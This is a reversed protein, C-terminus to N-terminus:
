AQMKDIISDMVAEVDVSEFFRKANCSLEDYQQEIKELANKIADKDMFDVVKGIKNSEIAFRLGPIDNAIVPLAQGTYEYLKNPACFLANLGQTQNISIYMLLGISAHSAVAIHEPPRFAGVYEFKGAYKERLTELYASARGMVFLRFRNSNEIAELVPELPREPSIGGMYLVPLKKDARCADLRQIAKTAEPSLPENGFHINTKNPLVIPTKKLHYRSQMIHARCYEPVVVTKANQAAKEIRRNKWIKEHLEYITFAYERNKLFKTGALMVTMENVVWLLSDETTLSDIVKRLRRSVMRKVANDVRLLLGSVGKIYPLRYQLTKDKKCLSVNQININRPRKAFFDDPYITIYIIEHGKAALSEIMFITPPMWEIREFTPIIIRM